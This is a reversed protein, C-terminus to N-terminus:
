GREAAQWPLMGWRQTSILAKVTGPCAPAHAASSLCCTLVSGAFIGPEEGGGARGPSVARLTGRRQEM